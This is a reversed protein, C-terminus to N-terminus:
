QRAELSLIEAAKPDDLSIWAPDGPRKILQGSMPTPPKAGAAAAPKPFTGASPGGASMAELQAKHEDTMKTLYWISDTRGPTRGPLFYAQVAEQGDHQFPPIDHPDDDKFLTKGDDCTYYRSFDAIARGGGTLSSWAYLAVAVVGVGVLGLAIAPHKELSPRIKENWFRIM